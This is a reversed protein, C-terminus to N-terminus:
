TPASPGQHATQAFAARVRGFDSKDRRVPTGGMAAVWKPDSPSLGSGLDRHVWVWVVVGAGVVQFNMSLEAFCMGCSVNQPQRGVETRWEDLFEQGLVNKLGYEVSVQESGGTTKERVSRFFRAMHPCPWFSKYGQSVFWNKTYGGERQLRIVFTYAHELLLSQGAVDVKPTVSWSIEPRSGTKGRCALAELLPGPKHASAVRSMVANVHYFSISYPVSPHVLPLPDCTTADRPLDTWVQPIENVSLNTLNGKTARGLLSKLFGGTSDKANSPLSSDFFTTVHTPNHHQCGDKEGHCCPLNGRWPQQVTHRQQSTM